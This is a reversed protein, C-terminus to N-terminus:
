LDLKGGSIAEFGYRIIAAKEEEPLETQANVMRVFEGKLSEEYLYDDLNVRLTTMDKVKIHYCKDDFCGAIYEIAIDDREVDMCGTLNIKVYNDKNFDIKEKIVSVIDINSICESVDVDHEEVTRLAFKVFSRRCSHSFEDIDLVVFGHEGAEDYGRGELCGPYCYVGRGDLAAERYEHIHGLALYDIGKNKLLPISVIVTRDGQRAQSEQGHLMVINFKESDLVLSNYLYNENDATLEAGVLSIGYCLEYETWANGFLHLNAPLEEMGSIFGDKDHNGKLYYFAIHPKNEIEARVAKRATASVSNSDFMDGAILVAEIGNEDAYNVLRTFNNLLEARRSKAKEKGLLNMKSDLHLDACHLIKM